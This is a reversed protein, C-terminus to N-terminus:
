RNDNCDRSNMYDRLKAGLRERHKEAEQLKEVEDKLEALSMHLRYNEALLWAIDSSANKHFIQNARAADDEVRYGEEGDIVIRENTGTPTDRRAELRKRIQDIRDM